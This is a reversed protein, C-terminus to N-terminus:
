RMINKIGPSAYTELQREGKRLYYEIASFDKKDLTLHQSFESRHM